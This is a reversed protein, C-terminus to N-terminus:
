CDVSIIAITMPYRSSIPANFGKIDSVFARM